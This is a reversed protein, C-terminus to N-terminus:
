GSSAAYFQCRSKGAGKAQYLAADAQRILESAVLSDQPFLSIGITGGIAAEAGSSLTFPKALEAILKQAVGAASFASANELLVVFEDGGLRAVTDTTRVQAQIRAAVQKLLLDGADHGLTDNVKKFGDLDLYCVAMMNGERATQAIAQRMRDGLLVRNPVGTLADHYALFEVRAEIEKRDSIDSFIGVYHTLKGDADRM